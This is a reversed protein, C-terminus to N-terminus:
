KRKAKALESQRKQEQIGAIQGDLFSFAEMLAAPQDLSGGSYPLYGAKYHQYVNLIDAIGNVIRM